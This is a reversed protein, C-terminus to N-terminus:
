NSTNYDLGDFFKEYIKRMALFKFSFLNYSYFEKNSAPSNNGIGYYYDPFNRFRIEGKFYYREKRTFVSWDMWVDTQRNLTYDALFRIYSARTYDTPDEKDKMHFVYAGAGGFGWRTDPSYYLLPTVFLGNKHVVITDDLPTVGFYSWFTKKKEVHTSDQAFSNFWLIIGFIILWNIKLM